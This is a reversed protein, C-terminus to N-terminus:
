TSSRDPAAPDARGLIVALDGVNRAGIKARAAALHTKVTNESLGLKEAIQRKSLALPALRAVRAEAPSLGFRRCLSAEDPLHSGRLPDAILVTAAADPVEAAAGLGAGPLVTLALPPLGTPRPVSLPEDSPLREACANAWVRRRLERHQGRAAVMLRGAALGIGDRAALIEEACANSFRVKLNRDVIVVGVGLRGLTDSLRDVGREALRLRARLSLARRLHPAWADFHRATDVEV